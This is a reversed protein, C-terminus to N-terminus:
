RLDEWRCRFVDGAGVSDALYFQEALTLISKADETTDVGHRKLMACIGALLEPLEEVSGLLSMYRTLEIKSTDM